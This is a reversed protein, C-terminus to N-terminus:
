IDKPTRPLSGRELNREFLEWPCLCEMELVGEAM